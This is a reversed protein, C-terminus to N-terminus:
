SAFPGHQAPQSQHRQCLEAAPSHMLVAGTEPVSRIAISPMVPILQATPAPWM